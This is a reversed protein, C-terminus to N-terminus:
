DLLLDTTISRVADGSTELDRVEARIRECGGAVFHAALSSVLRSPNAAYGQNHIRVAQVYDPALEPEIEHLTAADLLELRAGHEARLRWELHSLRDRAARRYVHLYSCSRILDQM